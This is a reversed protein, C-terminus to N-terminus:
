HKPASYLSSSDAEQEHTGQKLKEKVEDLNLPGTSVPETQPRVSTATHAAKTQKAQKKPKPTQQRPQQEKQQAHPQQTPQAQSRPAAATPTQPPIPQLGPRGVRFNDPTDVPSNPDNFLASPEGLFMLPTVATCLGTGIASFATDIPFGFLVYFPINKGPHVDNNTLQYVMTVSRQPVRVVKGCPRLNRYTLKPLMWAPISTGDYGLLYYAFSDPIQVMEEEKVIGMRERHAFFAPFAHAEYPGAYRLRRNLYVYYGQSDHYVSQEKKIDGTKVYYDVTKQPFSNNWVIKSICGGTFLPAFLLLLTSLSSCFRKM